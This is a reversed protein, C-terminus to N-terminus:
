FDTQGKDMIQTTTNASVIVWSLIIAKEKCPM